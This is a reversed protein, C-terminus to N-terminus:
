RNVRVDRGWRLRGLPSEVAHFFLAALGVSAIWGLAIFCLAAGPATLGLGAFLANFLMLVPFHILFLAYSTQSLHQVAAAVYPTRQATAPVAGWRALLLATVLALVIRTRFELALGVLALIVVLAFLWRTPAQDPSQELSKELSKRGAWWALAGMGYAGFFYVSWDDLNAHRNLVLLSSVCLIAVLMPTVQRRSAGMWFMLALLAFLQFDIAVYWVGASLADYGLIGHLLTAHALMQLWSPQAPVFDDSLWPRALAACLVALVLAAMFPGVLRAYRDIVAPLLGRHGHVREALSRAALYGAVVLFVQVAIRGHDYLGNVMGPLVQRAADSLPGYASFHHLVICQAALAKLLDVLPYRVAM